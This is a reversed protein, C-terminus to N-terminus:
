DLRVIEGTTMRYIARIITLEGDEVAKRLIRSKALVTKSSHQVNLEVCSLNYEGGISCTTSDEFAPSISNVISSLNSSPMEEGAVTAAVAGCSEHGLIVLLKSHLHKVAYEISGIAIKDAINGADRIVFLEGLKRDFVFEPPVRSDACGLVIAEPEQGSVLKGRLSAHNVNALKGSMFRQNGKVLENWVLEGKAALNEALSSNETKADRDTNKTKSTNNNAEESNTNGDASTQRKSKTTKPKAKKTTADTNSCASLFSLAIFGILLSTLVLRLGSPRRTCLNNM